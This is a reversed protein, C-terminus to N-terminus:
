MEVPLEFSTRDLEVKNKGSNKAYYLSADAHRVLVDQHSVNLEPHSVGGLSVTM